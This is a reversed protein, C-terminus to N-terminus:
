VRSASGGFGHKVRKHWRSVMNCVILAIFVINEALVKREDWCIRQGNLHWFHSPMLRSHEQWVHGLEETCRM